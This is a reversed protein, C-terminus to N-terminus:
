EPPNCRDCICTSFMPMDEDSDSDSESDSDPVEEKEYDDGSDEDYPFMGNNRIIEEIDEMEYGWLGDLRPEFVPPIFQGNVVVGTNFSGLEEPGCTEQRLLPPIDISMASADGDSAMIQLFFDNM